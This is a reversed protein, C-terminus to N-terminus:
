VASSCGSVCRHRYAPSWHNGWIDNLQAAQFLNDSNSSAGIMVTWVYSSHNCVSKSRYGILGGDGNFRYVRLLGAVSCSTNPAERAWFAHCTPSYRLDGGGGTTAVTRADDNCGSSVPDKDTCSLYSCSAAYAVDGDPGMPAISLGFVLALLAISRTIIDSKKRFM